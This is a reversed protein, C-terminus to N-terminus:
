SMAEVHENSKTCISISNVCRQACVNIDCKETRNKKTNITKFYKCKMQIYINVNPYALMVIVSGPFSAASSTLQLSVSAVIVCYNHLATKKRLDIKEPGAQHQPM